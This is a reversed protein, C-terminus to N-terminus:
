YYFGPYAQMIISSIASSLIFSLIIGIVMLILQAKAYNSKNPNENASFAWILLMIINVCPIASLLLIILWDKLSLDERYPASPPVTYQPRSDYQGQNDNFNNNEDM